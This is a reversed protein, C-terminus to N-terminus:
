MTKISACNGVMQVNKKPSPHPAPWRKKTLGGKSIDGIKYKQPIGLNLGQSSGYQQKQQQVLHGQKM